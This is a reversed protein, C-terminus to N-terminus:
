AASRSITKCDDATHTSIARRGVACGRIAWTGAKTPKVGFSAKFTGGIPLFVNFDGTNQGFLNGKRIRVSVHCSGARNGHNGGRVIVNNFAGVTLPGSSVSTVFCDIRGGGYPAAQAPAAMTLAGLSLGIAVAVGRRLKM